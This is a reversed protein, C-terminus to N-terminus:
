SWAAIAELAEQGDSAEGVVEMDDVRELYSRLRPSVTDDVVFVRIPPQQM